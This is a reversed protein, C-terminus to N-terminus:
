LAIQASWENRSLRTLTLYSVREKIGRTRNTVHRIARDGSDISLSVVQTLRDAELLVGLTSLYQVLVQARQLKRGSERFLDRFRLYVRDGFDTFFRVGYRTSEVIVQNRRHIVPDSDFALGHKAWREEAGASTPGTVQLLRTGPVRRLISANVM